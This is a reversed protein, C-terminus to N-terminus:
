KRLMGKVSNLSIQAMKAGVATIDIEKSKIFDSQKIPFYKEKYEKFSTCVVKQLKKSM